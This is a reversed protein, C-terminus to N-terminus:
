VRNTLDMIQALTNLICYLADLVLVDSNLSGFIYVLTLDDNYIPLFSGQRVFDSFKQKTEWSNSGQLFKEGKNIRNICKQNRYVQNDPFRIALSINRSDYHSLQKEAEKSM